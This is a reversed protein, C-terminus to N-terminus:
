LENESQKMFLAVIQVITGILMLVFFTTYIALSGGFWNVGVVLDALPYVFLYLQRATAVGYCVCSVFPLIRNLPEVNYFLTSLTILSGVLLMIFALTTSDDTIKLDGGDICVYFISLILMFAAVGISIYNGLTRKRLVVDKIYTMREGGEEKKGSALRHDFSM